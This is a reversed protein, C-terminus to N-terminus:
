PRRPAFREALFDIIASRDDNKVPAGWRIMKDVEREWQTRTLRQQEIVDSGHCPLCATRYSAPTSAGVTIGVQQVVNWLYGSPNWEQAFPQVNGESDRAQALINYFGAALPPTILEWLRWAYRSQDPGLRAATWTRGGDLSVRVEAIQGAGTWAAGSIRLPGPAAASRDLPTAIVSKVRLSTVPQMTKPDITAGPTVAKGPHRYATTMFFGDFDKDLLTIKSVWKSWCDGAWGPVVLRLPFGHLMPLPAGNLEYVLLTDPHLAKDLPITRQFKPMAGVPQDAGDFLVERAGTKVGATKLLDALRVGAWRGNGLAGYAWQLGIVSPEYFARGNGACELVAVQEVRPLKKLQEFSLASPRDVLGGIELQWSSLDVQPAYHHHRVFFKDVPTIWNSFGELPMEFDEPRASRVIMGTKPPDAARLSAVGAMALLERRSFRM